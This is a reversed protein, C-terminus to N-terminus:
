RQAGKIEPKRWEGRIKKWIVPNDGVMAARKQCAQERDSTFMVVRRDNRDGAIVAYTHTNWAWAQLIEKDTMYM